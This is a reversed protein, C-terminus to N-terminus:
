DNGNAEGLLKNKEIFVIETLRRRFDYYEIGYYTLELKPYESICVIKGSMVNVTDGITLEV